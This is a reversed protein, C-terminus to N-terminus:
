DQTPYVLKTTQSRPDFVLTPDKQPNLGVGGMPVTPRMGGEPSRGALVAAAGPFDNPNAKLYARALDIKGQAIGAEALNKDAAAGQTAATLMWKNVANQQLSQGTKQRLTDSAQMFLGAATRPVYRQPAPAAGRADLYTVAGTENNRIFGTGPPPVATSEPTAPQAFQPSVAARLNAQGMAAQDTEAPAGVVPPAASAATPAPAAGFGAPRSMDSGEGQTWKGAAWESLSKLGEAAYPVTAAAAGLVGGARLAKMGFGGATKLWSPVISKAATAVPAASGRFYGATRAGASEMKTVAAEGFQAVRRARNAAALAEPSAATPAAGTGGSGLLDFDVPLKRPINAFPDLE